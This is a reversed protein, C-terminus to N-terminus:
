NIKLSPELHIHTTLSDASAVKSGSIFSQNDNLQLSPPHQNQDAYKPSSITRKSRDSIEFGSRGAYARTMTSGISGWAPKFITCFDM